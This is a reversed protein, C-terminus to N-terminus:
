SVQFPLLSWASSIVASSAWSNGAEGWAAGWSNRILFQLDSGSTRYGIIARAHGGTQPDSPDCPQEIQGAQYNFLGQGVLGGIWVPVKAELCAAVTEPANGDPTVDYPGAFLASVAAEVMTLTTEPLPIPNGADDETAPVDTEGDQQPDQFRVSGWTGFCKDADDLQAGQDALAPLTDGPKTAAARYVGYMVQMWFLPSQLVPTQGLAAQRTFLLTDASHAWCGSCNGQNLVKPALPVLDAAGTLAARAVRIAHHDAAPARVIRKEPDTPLLGAKRSV